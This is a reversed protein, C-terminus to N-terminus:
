LHKTAVLESIKTILTEIDFPKPIFLDHGYDKVSLFTRSAASCIIVPISKTQENGKLQMCLEGGNTLPLRFDLLVVDPNFEMVSSVIDLMESYIRFEYCEDTFIEGLIYRLDPDNEVVLVKTPNQRECRILRDKLINEM